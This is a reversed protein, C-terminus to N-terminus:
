APIVEASFHDLSSYFTSCESLVFRKARKARHQPNQSDSKIDGDISCTTHPANGSPQREVVCCIRHSYAGMNRRNRSLSENALARQVRLM